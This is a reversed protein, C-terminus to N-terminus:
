PAATKSELRASDLSRQPAMPSKDFRLILIHSGFRVQEAPKGLVAWKQRFDEQSEQASQGVSGYIVWTREGGAVLLPSRHARWALTTFKPAFQLPEAFTDLVFEVTPYEAVIADQPRVNDMLYAAALDWRPKTEASYYPWLSVAGGIAVATAIAPSLRKPLAAAGVGAMVFFPGTGWLLYRPVLVPQFISIALLAVPMAVFALGIVALLRPQSRLRWAGFLALAAVIAGFQAFPGPLVELSMMDSIRFLYVAAVISRLSDWTPQPVWELGTLVAGRNASVIVFLAPLWVVLIIAQVWAWNRILGSRETAARHIVAAFAINSALLWPVTNNEVLLAGVTGFLYAAWAGRLGDPRTMPLAARGPQQAIHILGWVAILVLCSILAYARAEQGYQVELPSLAMLLGAVVGALEGRIDAAVKAVLFACGAGFLASPLRLMWPDVHASAFSRLLLFYTPYHKHKLADIVLDAFPLRARNLSLIEDYWLPKDSLGHLRLLLALLALLIPLALTPRPLRLHAFRSAAMQGAMGTVRTSSESRELEFHM